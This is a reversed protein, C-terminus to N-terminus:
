HFNNQAFQEAREQNCYPSFEATFLSFEQNIRYTMAIFDQAVSEPEESEPTQLWLFREADAKKLTCTGNRCQIEAGYVLAFRNIKEEFTKDDVNLDSKSVTTTQNNNM